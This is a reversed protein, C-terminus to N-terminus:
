KKIKQDPFLCSLLGCGFTLLTTLPYLWVPNLQPQWTAVFDPTILQFNLLIKYLDPRIILACLISLLVGCLIGSFRPRFPSLALLFIGLMSGYTYTLIGFALDVMNINGRLHNLGLASLCLIIAWILVLAKSEFIM